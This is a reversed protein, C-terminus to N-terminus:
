YTINEYFGAQPEPPRPNLDGKEGWNIKASLGSILPNEANKTEPRSVASKSLNVGNKQIKVKNRTLYRTSKEQTKETSISAALGFDPLRAIAESKEELKIHAYCKMTLNIDSHRM